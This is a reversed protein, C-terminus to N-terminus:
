QGSTKPMDCDKIADSGKHLSASRTLSLSDYKRTITIIEDYYLLMLETELRRRRTNVQTRGFRKNKKTSALPGHTCLSTDIYVSLASSQPIPEFQNLRSQGLSCFESLIRVPEAKVTM